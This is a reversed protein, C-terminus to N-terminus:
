LYRGVKAEMLRVRTQDMFDYDDPMDLCIVRKAGFYKRFRSRLKVLHAKGMVFVIDAWDILEGDVPTEADNNTGASMAEIGAYQSFVQEATPQAAQEPQLRGIRTVKMGISVARLKAGQLTLSWLVEQIEQGVWLPM